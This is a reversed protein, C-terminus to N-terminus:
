NNKLHKLNTKPSKSTSYKPVNNTLFTHMNISIFNLCPCILRTRLSEFTQMSKKAECTVVLIKESAITFNCSGEGGQKFIIDESPILLIFM